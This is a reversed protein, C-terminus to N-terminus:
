CSVPRILFRANATPHQTDSLDKAQLMLAAGAIPRDRM